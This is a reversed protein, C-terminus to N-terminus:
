PASLSIKDRQWPLMNWIVPVSLFYWIFVCVSFKKKPSLSSGKYAKIDEIEITASQGESGTQHFWKQSKVVLWPETKYLIGTVDQWAKHKVRLVQWTFHNNASCSTFCQLHCWIRGPYTIYNKTLQLKWQQMGWIRIMLASMGIRRFQIASEHKILSNGYLLLPMKGERQLETLVIVNSSQPLGSIILWVM